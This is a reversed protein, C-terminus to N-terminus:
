ILEGKAYNYDNLCVIAECKTGYLRSLVEDITENRIQKEITELVSCDEFDYDYMSDITDRAMDLGNVLQKQDETLDEVKYDGSEVLSRFNM